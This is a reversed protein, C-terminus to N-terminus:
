RDSGLDPAQLEKLRYFDNEHAVNNTAASTRGDHRACIRGPDLGQSLVAVRLAAEAEESM